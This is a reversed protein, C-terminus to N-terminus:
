SGAEPEVACASPLDYFLQIFLTEEDVIQVRNGPHFTAEAGPELQQCVFATYNPDDYVTWGAAPSLQRRLRAEVTQRPESMTYVTLVHRPLGIDDAGDGLQLRQEEQRLEVGLHSVFTEAAQRALQEAYPRASYALGLGLPTLILLGALTVGWGLQLKLKYSLFIVLGLGLAMLPLMLLLVAFFPLWVYIAWACLALCILVYTWVLLTGSQLPLDRELRM